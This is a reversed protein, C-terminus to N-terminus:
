KNRVIDRHSQVASIENKHVQFDLIWTTLHNSWFQLTVIPCYISILSLYGADPEWIRGVEDREDKSDGM